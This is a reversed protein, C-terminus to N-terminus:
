GNEEAARRARDILLPLPCPKAVFDVEGARLDRRLLEEEVHGSCVVLHAHPQLRRLEAILDRTPRGPMVADMWALVVRTDRVLPIARDVSPAEVVRFGRRSLAIRWARRVADDDDVVLVCAGPAVEAPLPRGETKPTIEDAKALLLTFTTGRGPSSEVRVSGGGAELVRKAAALGLGTGSAGKTTFFPEFLHAMTAADMGPGTDTVEIAAACGTEGRESETAARARLCFVGGAPMADRANLALNLLVGHLSPADGLAAPCAEIQVDVSLGEVMRLQRQTARVFAGVDMPTAEAAIDRGSLALLRRLVATAADVAESMDALGQEVVESRGAAPQMSVLDLEGRIAQLRNSCDHAFGGGLRGLALLGQSRRREADARAQAEVSAHRRSEELVAADLLEQRRLTTRSLTQLHGIMLPLPIVALWLLTAATRVWNRANTLESGQPDVHLAGAAHLVGISLLAVVALFTIAAAHRGGVLCAAMLGCIAAAGIGGPVLGGATAALISIAAMAGLILCRRVRHSAPLFASWGVVCWVATLAVTSWVPWLAVQWWLIALPPAALLFMYRSVRLVLRERFAELDQDVDDM